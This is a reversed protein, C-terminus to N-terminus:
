YLLVIFEGHERVGHAFKDAKKGLKNVRSLVSIKSGAFHLSNEIWFDMEQEDNMQWALLLPPKKCQKSPYKGDSPSINYQGALDPLIRKVSQEVQLAASGLPFGIVHRHLSAEM